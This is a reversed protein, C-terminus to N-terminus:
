PDGGQERSPVKRKHTPRVPRGHQGLASGFNRTGHIEQNQRRRRDRIKCRRSGRDDDCRKRARFGPRPLLDKLKLATLSTEVTRHAPVRFSPAPAPDNWQRGYYGMIDWSKEDLIASWEFSQTRGAIGPVRTREARPRLTRDAHLAPYPGSRTSCSTAARSWPARKSERKRGSPAQGRRSRRGRNSDRAPYFPTTIPPFIGHLLM